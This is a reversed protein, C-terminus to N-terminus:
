AAPDPPTAPEAVEDTRGASYDWVELGERAALEEVAVVRAAFSEATHVCLEQFWLIYLGEQDEDEMPEARSFGLGAIMDMLRGVQDEAAGKLMFSWGLPAATDFHAGLSAFFQKAEDAESM